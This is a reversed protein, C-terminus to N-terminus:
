NPAHQGDFLMIEIGSSRPRSLVFDYVFKDQSFIFPLLLFFLHSFLGPPPPLSILSPSIISFM